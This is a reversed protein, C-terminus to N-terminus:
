IYKEFHWLLSIISNIFLSFISNILILFPSSLKYKVYFTGILYSQYCQDRQQKLMRPVKTQKNWLPNDFDWSAYRLVLLANYYMRDWIFILAKTKPSVNMIRRLTFFRPFLFPFSFRYLHKFLSEAPLSTHCDGLM